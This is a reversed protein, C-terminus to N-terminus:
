EAWGQSFYRLLRAAEAFAPGAPSEPNVLSEAASLGECKTAHVAAEIKAQDNTEKKTKPKKHANGTSGFM